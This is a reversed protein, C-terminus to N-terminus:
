AEGVQQILYQFGPSECAAAASASPTVAGLRDASRCYLSPPCRTAESPRTAASRGLRYAQGPASTGYWTKTTGGRQVRRFAGAPNNTEPRDQHRGLRGDLSGDCENVAPAEEEGSPLRRRSCMGWSRSGPARLPPRRRSRSAARVPVSRCPSEQRRPRSKRSSSRPLFVACMSGGLRAPRFRFCDAVTRAVSYVRVTQGEIRHDEIGLDFVDPTINVVRIPPAALRPVRTGRPVAIWVEAPLQTGIGHFRLASLLCVVSRPVAATAVAMDHHETFRTTKPLRYRGPGVRELVGSRALRTLTSTHIGQRAVDRARLVPQKAALRLIRGATGRRQTTKGVIM